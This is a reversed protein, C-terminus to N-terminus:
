EVKEEQAFGEETDVAVVLALVTCPLPGVMKICVRSDTDWEGDFEFMDQDHHAHITHAAVTKENHVLPLPDLNDFDPGYQFAQYHTKSLIAGLQAVRKPQTLASGVQAAYALKTSKYTGDYLLGATVMAYTGGLSIVGSGNVVRTGLYQGDAWVGVTDNALHSLGGMTTMTAGSEDTAFLDFCNHTAEGECKNEVELLCLHHSGQWIVEFFVNDEERESGAPLVCVDIFEMQSSCTVWCRVEEAKDYVLIALTGDDLVCIIRTDPQRQVDIAVVGAFLIEPTLISVDTSTYDYLESDFVIEYLKKNSRQVFMATSDIKIAQINASGQTSAEKISYNGPTLPEDFSSSRVSHEGGHGGLILRQLPLMWAINDVPGSGISRNIAGSDGLDENDDFSEFADSVSGWNRDSGAWWLRGEFLAVATPYGRRSSWSGESWMNSAITHGLPRLIQASAVRSSSVFTIRVIGTISGREYTLSVSSTGSSYEGSKFGLRYWVIQDDLNDDYDTITQNSTYTEADIWAGPTGFSRQLTVTGAWVGSIIIDFGREEAGFGSIRIAETFQDSGALNSFVQQGSSEIRYLSGLNGSTFIDDSATLTTNGIITSSSISIPLVNQVRFPGDEPLYKVVSWSDDQRREIKYPQLYAPDNACAVYVVDGSQDMRISNLDVTAWPTIVAVPGASEISIQTIATIYATRSALTISANGSPTFALSHEGETLLREEFLEDGGVSFGVRFLVQGTAIVLRVSHLKGINSGSVTITQRRIAKNVGTGQLFMFGGTGWQSVAGSEDADTWGSLDTNFLGNTITTTVGPRTVLAHNNWIRMVNSTLEILRQDGASFVFPFYRARANAHTTGLFWTGPRLMASGLTRPMVNDQIEASLPTRQLDVRALAKPSIIGRNFAHISVNDSGM